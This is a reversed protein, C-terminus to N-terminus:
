RSACIPVSKVDVLAGAAHLHRARHNDGSKTEWLFPPSTGNAAQCRRASVAIRCAPQDADVREQVPTTHQGDETFLFRITTPVNDGPWRQERCRVTVGDDLPSMDVGVGAPRKLLPHIPVLLSWRKATM